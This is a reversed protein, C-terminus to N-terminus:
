VFGISDLGIDIKKLIDDISSNNILISNIVLPTLWCKMERPVQCTKYIM